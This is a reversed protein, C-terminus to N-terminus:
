KGRKWEKLISLLCFGLCRRESSNATEPVTLFPAFRLSLLSSYIQNSKECLDLTSQMRSDAFFVKKFELNASEGRFHLIRQITNSLKNLRDTQRNTQTHTQAYSIYYSLASMVPGSARISFRWIADLCIAVNMQSSEVTQTHTQDKHSM